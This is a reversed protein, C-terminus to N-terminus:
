RPSPHFHAECQHVQRRVQVEAARRGGAAGARQADIRAGGRYHRPLACGLRPARQRRGRPRRRRRPPARLPQLGAGEQGEEVGGGNNAGWCERPRLVKPQHFFSLLVVLPLNRPLHLPSPSTPSASGGNCLPPQPPNPQTAAPHAKTEGRHSPAALSVPGASTALNPKAIALLSSFPVTLAQNTTKGSYGTGYRPVLIWCAMSQAHLFPINPHRATVPRTAPSTTQNLSITCRSLLPWNRKAHRQGPEPSVFFFTACRQGPRPTGRADPPGPGISEGPLWDAMPQM